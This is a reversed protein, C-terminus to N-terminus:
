EIISIDLHRASFQLAGLDQWRRENATSSTPSSVVVLDEAESAMGSESDSWPDNYDIDLITEQHPSLPRSPFESSPLSSSSTSPSLLLSMNDHPSSVDVTPMVLSISPDTDEMNMAGVEASDAVSSAADNYRVEELRCWGAVSEGIVREVERQTWGIFDVRLLSCVGFGGDPEIQGFARLRAGRKWVNNQDLRRFLREARISHSEYSAHFDSFQSLPFLLQPVDSPDVVPLPVRTYPPRCLPVHLYTTVPAVADDFYHSVMDEPVFLPSAAVAIQKANVAERRPASRKSRRPRTRRSHRKKLDLNSEYLARIAIPANEVMNHFIPMATAYSRAIGLGVNTAVRVGASPPRPLVPRTGSSLATRAHFSLRSQITPPAASHLSRAAAANSYTPVRLGPAALQNVIFTFFNRTASFLKNPPLRSPRPPCPGLGRAFTSANRRRGPLRHFGGQAFANVAKRASARGAAIAMKSSTSVAFLFLHLNPHLNSTPFLLSSSLYVAAFVVGYKWIPIGPDQTHPVADHSHM